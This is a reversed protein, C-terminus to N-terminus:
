PQDEDLEAPRITRETFKHGPKILTHSPSKPQVETIHIDAILVAIPGIEGKQERTVGVMMRDGKRHIQQNALRAIVDSNSAFDNTGHRLLSEASTDSRKQHPL